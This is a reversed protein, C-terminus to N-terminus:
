QTQALAFAQIANFRAESLLQKGANLSNNTTTVDDLLLIPLNFQNFGYPLNVILSNLHVDIKRIGGSALKQIKKTRKLWSTGNIIQSNKECLKLALSRVGSNEITPDHSPIIVIAFSGTFYDKLLNYFYEISSSDNQKLNLIKSSFQDFLSNTGNRYPHYTGYFLVSNLEVERNSFIIPNTTTLSTVKKLSILNHFYNRSKNEHQCKNFWKDSTYYLPTGNIGSIINFKRTHGILKISNVSELSFNLIMFESNLNNFLFLGFKSFFWEYRESYDDIEGHIPEYIMDYNFCYIPNIDSNIIHALGRKSNIDSFYISKGDNLCWLPNEILLNEILIHDTIFNTQNDKSLEHIVKTSNNGVFGVMSKLILNNLDGFEDIYYGEILLTGTENKQVLFVKFQINYKLTTITNIGSDNFNWKEISDKEFIGGEVIKNKNFYILHNNKNNFFAYKLILSEIFGGGKLLIKNEGYDYFNLEQEGKYIHKKYYSYFTENNNLPKLILTVEKENGERDIINLVIKKLSDNEVDVELFGYFESEGNTLIGIRGTNSIYWQGYDIKSDSKVYIELINNGKFKLYFLEDEELWEYTKLALEVISKVNVIKM